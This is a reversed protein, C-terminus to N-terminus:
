ATIWSGSSPAAVEQPVPMRCPVTRSHAPMWVGQSTMAPQPSCDRLCRGPSLTAADRGMLVMFTVATVQVAELTGTPSPLATEPSLTGMTSYPPKRWGASGSFHGEPEELPVPVTGDLAGRMDSRTRPSGSVPKGKARHIHCHGKDRQMM